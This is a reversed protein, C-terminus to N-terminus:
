AAGEQHQMWQSLGSGLCTECTVEGLMVTGCASCQATTRHGRGGNRDTAGAPGDLDRLAAMAAGIHAVAVECGPRGRLRRELTQMAEIDQTHTTM